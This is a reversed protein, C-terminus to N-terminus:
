GVVLIVQLPKILVMFEGMLRVCLSLLGLFVALNGASIQSFIEALKDLLRELPEGIGLRDIYEFGVSAVLLNHKLLCHFPAYVKCGLMLSVEALFYKSRSHDKVVIRLIDFREVHSLIWISFSYLGEIYENWFHTFNDTARLTLFSQIEQFVSDFFHLKIRLHVPPVQIDPFVAGDGM